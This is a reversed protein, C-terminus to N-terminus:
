QKHLCEKGLAALVAFSINGLKSKQYPFLGDPLGVTSSAGKLLLNTWMSIHSPIQAHCEFVSTASSENMGNM